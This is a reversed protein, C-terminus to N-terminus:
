AQDAVTDSLSTFTEGEQKFLGSFVVQRQPAHNFILRLALHPGRGPDLYTLILFTLLDFAVLLKGLVAVHRKYLMVDDDIVVQAGASDGEKGVPV